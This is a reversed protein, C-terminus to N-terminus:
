PGPTVGTIKPEGEPPDSWSETTASHVTSAPPATIGAEYRSTICTM